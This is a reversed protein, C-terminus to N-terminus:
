SPEGPSEPTQDNFADILASCDNRCVIDILGCSTNNVCAFCENTIIETESTEQASDITATCQTTCEAQEQADNSGCACVTTCLDETRHDGCATFLLVASAVLVHAAFYTLRM